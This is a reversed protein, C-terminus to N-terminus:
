GPSGVRRIGSRSGLFAVAYIMACILVVCVGSPVVPLGASVSVGAHSALAGIAAASLLMWHWRRCLLSAILPPITFLAVILILGMARIGVAITMAALVLMLLDQVKVRVGSVRAFSEDFCLLMWQRHMVGYCLFVVLSIVTIVRVEALNITASQGLIYTELGAKAGSPIVQIYSLLVLGLGYFGSLALALAADRKIHRGMQWVFALCVLMMVFAGGTVFVEKKLESEAGFLLMALFGLGVGALSAHSLADSLLARRRAILHCGLLAAAASQMAVALSVRLAHDSADFLLADWIDNM